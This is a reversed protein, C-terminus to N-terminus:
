LHCPASKVATLKATSPWHECREWADKNAWTSRQIEEGVHGTDEVTQEIDVRVNIRSLEIHSGSGSEEIIQEQSEYRHAPRVSESSPEPSIKGWRRSVALRANSVHSVLEKGTKRILRPLSIICAVTIGLSIEAYVCLAEFALHYSIDQAQPAYNVFAKFGFYIRGVSAASASYLVENAITRGSM